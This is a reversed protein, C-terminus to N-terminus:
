QLGGLNDQTATGIVVNSTNKVTCHVSIVEAARVYEDFATALADAVQDSTWTNDKAQKFVDKLKAALTQKNLAM